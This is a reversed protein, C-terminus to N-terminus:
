AALVREEVFDGKIGVKFLTTPIRRGSKELAKKVLQILGNCCPVEMHVVDISRIGSDRFIGTLKEVYASVDDFKPCGVLLTKGPLFRQHFEGYAFPVCDAAIVLDAGQLYPAHPPVLMIQVPWNGLMSPFPGEDSPRLTGPASGTPRNLKKVLTGPCGCALKDIKVEGGTGCGVPNESRPRDHDSCSVHDRGLNGRRENVAKEDYEGAEREVLTIAGRPCEGLCEGLGDCYVDGVLKAKGDIIQLAGEACGPVCLGCGDCKEEDIQVVTRFAM